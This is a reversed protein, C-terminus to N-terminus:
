FALLLQLLMVQFILICTKVYNRIDVGQHMSSLNGKFVPFGTKQTCGRIKIILIVFFHDWIHDVGITLCIWDFFICTCIKLKNFKTQIKTNSTSVANCFAFNAMRSCSSNFFSKGEVM